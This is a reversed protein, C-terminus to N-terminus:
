SPIWSGFPCEWSCRVEVTMQPQVRSPPVPLVPESPWQWVSLSGLCAGRSAEELSFSGWRRSHNFFVFFVNQMIIVIHWTRHFAFFEFGNFLICFRVLNHSSFRSFLTIRVCFVFTWEFSCMLCIFATFIEVCKPNAFSRNQHLQPTLTPWVSRCNIAQNQFFNIKQLPPTFTAWADVLEPIEEQFEGFEELATLQTLFSNKVAEWECTFLHSPTGQWKPSSALVCHQCSWSRWTLVGEWDFHPSPLM